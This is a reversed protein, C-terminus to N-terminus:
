KLIAWKSFLIWIYKLNPRVTASSTRLYASIQIVGECFVVIVISIIFARCFTSKKHSKLFIRLPSFTSVSLWTWARCPLTASTFEQFGHDRPHVWQQWHGLQVSISISDWRGHTVMKSVDWFICTCLKSTIKWLSLRRLFATRNNLLPTWGTQGIACPSM